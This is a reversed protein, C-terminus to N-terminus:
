RRSGGLANKILSASCNEDEVVFHKPSVRWRLTKDDEDYYTDDDQVGVCDGVPIHQHQPQAFNTVEAKLAEVRDAVFKPQDFVKALQRKTTRTPKYKQLWMQVATVADDSSMNDWLGDSAMILFDPHDGNQVRIETIEPEATLYPPTKIVNRPRPSPGWLTDHVKRTLDESWKWRADGFARAVAIGHVRGTRSDVVEEGPHERELRAVEDPNFGTQDVSLPKAIYQNTENDWRGLVARSDGVNAVRLVSNM